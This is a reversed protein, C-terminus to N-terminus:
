CGRAGVSKIYLFDSHKGIRFSQNGLELLGNNINKIAEDVLINRQQEAIVKNQSSINRDINTIQYQIAKIKERLKSENEFALNNSRVGM